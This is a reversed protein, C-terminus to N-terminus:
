QLIVSTDIQRILLFAFPTGRVIPLRRERFWDLNRTNERAFIREIAMSKSGSSISGLPAFGSV